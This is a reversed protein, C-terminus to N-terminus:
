ESSAPVSLFMMFCWMDCVDGGPPRRWAEPHFRDCCLAQTFFFLSLSLIWTLDTRYGTSIYLHCARLWAAIILRQSVDAKSSSRGEFGMLLQHIGMLLFLLSYIRGPKVKVWKKSVKGYPIFKSGLHIWVWAVQRLELFYVDLDRQNRAASSLENEEERNRNVLPEKPDTAENLCAYHLATM